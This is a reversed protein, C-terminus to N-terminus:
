NIPASTAYVMGYDGAKHIPGQETHITLNRSDLIEKVRPYTTQWHDVEIVTQRIRPWHHEKIGQLVALEGGEVDIKLLDISKIDHEDIAASLSRVRVRYAATKRLARMRYETFRRIAFSPLRQLRPGMGGQRIAEAFAKALRVREEQNNQSNRLASSLVTAMPFYTFDLEGEHAALGYPLVTVRGHFFEKANRELMARIPPLPEFAFIRVDGGLRAYTYASFAGINAGVDLVTAGRSLQIGHSFYLPVESRVIEVEWPNVCHLAFGSVTVRAGPSATTLVKRPVRIEEMNM